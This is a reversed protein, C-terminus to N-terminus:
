LILQQSKKRKTNEARNMTRRKKQKKRIDSSGLRLRFVIITSAPLYLGTSPDVLYRKGEPV